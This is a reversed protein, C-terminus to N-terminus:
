QNSEQNSILLMDKRRSSYPQQTSTVDSGEAERDATALLMGEILQDIILLQQEPMLGADSGHQPTSHRTTPSCHDRRDTNELQDLLLETGM